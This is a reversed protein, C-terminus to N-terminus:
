RYGEGALGGAALTVEWAVPSPAAVGSLEDFPTFWDALQLSPMRTLQGAVSQDIGDFREDFLFAIDDDRALVDRLTDFDIAEDEDDPGPAYLPAYHEAWGQPNDHRVDLRIELLAEAHDIIGRLALQEAVCSLPLWAPQALRWTAAALCHYFKALLQPEASYRPLYRPPLLSALQSDAVEAARRRRSATLIRALDDLCEDALQTAADALVV